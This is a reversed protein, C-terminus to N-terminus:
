AFEFRYGRAIRTGEEATSIPYAPRGICRIEVYLRGDDTTKPNNRLIWMKLANLYDEVSKYGRNPLYEFNDKDQLLKVTENFAPALASSSVDGCTFSYYPTRTNRRNMTRQGRLVADVDASTPMMVKLPDGINISTANRSFTADAQEATEQSDTRAKAIVAVLESYEANAITKFQELETASLAESEKESVMTAPAEVESAKSKAKVDLNNKKETMTTYIHKQKVDIIAPPTNPYHVGENM